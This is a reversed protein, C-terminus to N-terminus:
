GRPEAKLASIDVHGSEFPKYTTIEDLRKHYNYAEGGFRIWSVAQPTDSIYMAHFVPKAGQCFAYRRMKGTFDIYDIYAIFWLYKKGSYVEQWIAPTLLSNRRLDNTMTQEIDRETLLQQFFKRKYIPTAPLNDGVFAELYDAVISATTKGNNRMNFMNAENGASRQNGAQELKVAFIPLYLGVAADASLKAADASKATADAVEKSTEDAKRLFYIQAASVFALIGTVIALMETFYAVRADADDPSSAPYQWVGFVVLGIVALLSLAEFRYKRIKGLNIIGLRGKEM